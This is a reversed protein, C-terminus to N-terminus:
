HDGWDKRLEVRVPVVAISPRFPKPAVCFTSIPVHRARARCPFRSLHGGGDAIPEMLPQLSSGYAHAM